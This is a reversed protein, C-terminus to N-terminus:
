PTRGAEGLEEGEEPEIVEEEPLEAQARKGVVLIVEASPVTAAGGRPTQRIVLGIKAENGIEEEEVFPGFGAARVEEVAERREKGVVGPVKVKQQAKAVM